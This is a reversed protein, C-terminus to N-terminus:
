FIQASVISDQFETESALLNMILHPPLTNRQWIVIVLHNCLVVITNRPKKLVIKLLHKSSTSVSRARWIALQDPRTQGLTPRGRTTRVTSFRQYAKKENWRKDWSRQKEFLNSRRVRRLIREKSIIRSKQESIYKGSVKLRQNQRSRNRDWCGDHHTLNITMTQPAHPRILTNEVSIKHSQEKMAPDPWQNERNNITIEESGPLSKAETLRNKWRLPQM